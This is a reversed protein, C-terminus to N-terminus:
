LCRKLKIVTNNTSDTYDITPLMNFNVKRGKEGRKNLNLKTFTKPCNGKEKYHYSWGKLYM